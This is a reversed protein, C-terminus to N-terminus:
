REELFFKRAQAGNLPGGHGVYIKLIERTFLDKLSAHVEDMSAIWYHYRPRYPLLLGLLLGGGVLDGVVAEGGATVISISGPTHGPTSVIQADAGYPKLDLSDNVVIDVETPAFPINSFPTLLRAILNYPKIVANKGNVLFTQELEHAVVKCGSHQRIAAVNGAHDFHAHTLVLLEIEDLTVGVKQLQRELIPLDGPSGSDVLIPKDGMLLFANSKSLPLPYIAPMSILKFLFYQFRTVLFSDQQEAGTVTRCYV